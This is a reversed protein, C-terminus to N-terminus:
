PRGLHLLELLRSTLLFELSTALQALSECVVPAERVGALGYRTLVPGEFRVTLWGSERTM